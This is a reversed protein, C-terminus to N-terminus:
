AGSQTRLLRSILDSRENGVTVVGGTIIEHWCSKLYSLWQIDREGLRFKKGDPLDSMFEVGATKRNIGEDLAVQAHVALPASGIEFFAAFDGMISYM